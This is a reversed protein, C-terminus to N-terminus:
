IDKSRLEHIQRFYKKSLNSFFLPSVYQCYALSGILSRYEEENLRGKSYLSLMLRIHDKQKRHLTIHGNECVRLGTVSATGGTSSGFKTKANNILIDPSKHEVVLDEILKRIERCAGKKDTSFVLDDAYRTYTVKGYQEGSILDAVKIDFAYM